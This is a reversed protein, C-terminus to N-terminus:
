MYDLRPEELIKTSSHSLWQDERQDMALVENTHSFIHSSMTMPPATIMQHGSMMRHVFRTLLNHVGNYAGRGGPYIGVKGETQSSWNGSCFFSQHGGIHVYANRMHLFIHSHGQMHFGHRHLPKDHQPNGEKYSFHIVYIDIHDSLSHEHMNPIQNRTRATMHYVVEKYSANTYSLKDYHIKHPNHAELGVFIDM